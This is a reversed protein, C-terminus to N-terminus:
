LRLVAGRIMSRYYGLAGLNFVGTEQCDPYRAPVSRWGATEQKEPLHVVAPVSEM